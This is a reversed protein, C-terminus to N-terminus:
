KKIAAVTWGSKNPPQHIDINMLPFDRLLGLVDKQSWYFATTPILQDFVISHIHWFDFSSLQKLYPVPGRFIKVFIWLPVSCFYSLFHVLSVPLRSTILKRIPDVYKVIWENGEYSYVWLLLTGGDKLSGILKKLADHPRELHHLVGICFVLDFANEFNIEYISRFLVEANNFSSLNKKARFVSRKDFDIAVVKKAGYHLAWFSNRGMGCGADLIEKGEFDAQKLPSVWNLFQTEYKPDMFNYKDWEYGFRDQSSM